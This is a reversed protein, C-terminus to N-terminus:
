RPWTKRVAVFLGTVLASVGLTGPEPVTQIAHITATGQYYLGTTISSGPGWVTLGENFSFVEGSLRMQELWYLLDSTGFTEYASFAPEEGPQLGVAYYFSSSPNLVVSAQESLVLSFTRNPDYGRETVVAAPYMPVSQEGGIWPLTDTLPTTIVPSGFWIQKLGAITARTVTTPDFLVTVDINRPQFGVPPLLTGAEIASYVHVDFLINLPAASSITALLLLATVLIQM